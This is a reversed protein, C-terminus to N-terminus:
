QVNFNQSALVDGYSLEHLYYALWHQLCIGYLIPGGGGLCWSIRLPQARAFWKSVWLVRKVGTNCQAIVEVACFV